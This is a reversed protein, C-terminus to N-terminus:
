KEPDGELRDRLYQDEIYKKITEENVNGVM